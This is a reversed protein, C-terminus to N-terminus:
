SANSRYLPFFQTLDKKESKSYNQCLNNYKKLDNIIRLTSFRKTLPSFGLKFKFLSDEVSGVGGGLNLWDHTGQYREFARDLVLKIPADKMFSHATGGLHYQIVKSSKMFLAVSAIVGDKKCVAIEMRDNLSGLMEYYSRNFFYYNNAEVRKMTEDYVEKFIDIGSVRLFEVKYGSNKLYEIERKRNSSYNSFIENYAKKLSVVVVKSQILHVRSVEEDLLINNHYPNLRLFTSVYGLQDLNFQFKKIENQLFESERNSTLYGSYGYPSSADILGKNNITRLMLPIAFLEDETESVYYVAKANVKSSEYILYDPEHYFEGVSKILDLLSTSLNSPDIIM